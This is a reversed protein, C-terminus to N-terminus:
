REAREGHLAQDLEELPVQRVGGHLHQVAMCRQDGRQDRVAQDALDGEGATLVGPPGDGRRGRVPENRGDQLEAAVVGRDEQGVRREVGRAHFPEDHRAEGAGALDAHRRFPQVHGPEALALEDLQVRLRRLPDEDDAVGEGLADGHAREDAGVGVPAGVVQQHGGVLAVGVEDRHAAHLVVAVGLTVEHTREQHDVGVGARCQDALLLEGRQHRQDEVVGLLLDQGHGVVVVEAEAGRHPAGVLLPREREGAADLRAEREDVRM